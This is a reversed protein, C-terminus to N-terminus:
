PTLRLRYASVVLLPDSKLIEIKAAVLECDNYEAPLPVHQSIIDNKIAIMTGGYGDPRDKRWAQDYLDSPLIEASPVAPNLWTESAIVLDPGETEILSWLSEKKAQISQLNTVLVRLPTHKRHTDRTQHTPSSSHLPPGIDSQAEDGTDDLLDFTNLTVLTDTNNFRGSSFNPM